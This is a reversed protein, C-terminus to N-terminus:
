ISNLSLNVLQRLVHAEYNWVLSLYIHNIFHFCDFICVFSLFTWCVCCVVVCCFTRLYFPLFHVACFAAVLCVFEFFLYELCHSVLQFFCRALFVIFNLLFLKLRPLCCGFFICLVCHTLPIQMLRKCDFRIFNMLFASQQVNNERNCLAKLLLDSSSTQTKTARTVSM